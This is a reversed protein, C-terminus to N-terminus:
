RLCRAVEKTSVLFFVYLFLLEVRNAVVRNVSADLELRHYALYATRDGKDLRFGKALGHCPAPVFTRFSRDARKGRKPSM